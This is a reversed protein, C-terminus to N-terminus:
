ITDANPLTRVQPMRPVEIRLSQRPCIVQTRLQQMQRLAMMREQQAQARASAIQQRAIATQQSAFQSQMRVFSAQSRAVSMTGRDLALQGMALMRSGESSLRQVAAMAQNALCQGDLRTAFHNGVVLALVGVAMWYTAKESNM